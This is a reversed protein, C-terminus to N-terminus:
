WSAQLQTQALTVAPLLENSYTKRVVNLQLKLRTAPPLWTLGAMYDRETVDLAAGEKRTDPDWMDFRALVKLSKAPIFAALAYTGQRRVVGDQGRMAEAQVLAHSTAYVFDVGMRDRTPKDASAEGSSAASAGIRLGKIVAPRVGLQAVVAKGVNRDAENMTEGSGNYVGGKYDLWRWTSKVAVGLDRVDGFSAGRARDAEM